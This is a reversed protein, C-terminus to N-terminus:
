EDWVFSSCPINRNLAPHPCFSKTTSTVSFRVKTDEFIGFQKALTKFETLDNYYVRIDGGFNAERLAESAPVLRAKAVLAGFDHNYQRQELHLMFGVKFQRIMVLYPIGSDLCDKRGLQLRQLM